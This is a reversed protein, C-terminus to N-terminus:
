LNEAVIDTDTFQPGSKDSPHVDVYYNDGWILMFFSNYITELSKM